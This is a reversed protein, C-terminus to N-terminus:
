RYIRQDRDNDIFNLRGHGAIHSQPQDGEPVATVRFVYVGGLRPNRRPRLGITVVSGPTVPPDLEVTVARTEEDMSVNGVGLERQMDGPTGEFVMTKEIHYPQLYRTLNQPAIVVRQLSADADAPLDLTFFYTANRRMVNNRTTYANLFQPPRVFATTGDALEIAQATPTLTPAIATVTGISLAVGMAIYRTTNM